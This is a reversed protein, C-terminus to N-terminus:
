PLLENDDHPLKFGVDRIDLVDDPLDDKPRSSINPKQETINSIYIFLLAELVTIACKAGLSGIALLCRIYIFNLDIKFPGKQM